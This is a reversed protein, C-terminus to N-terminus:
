AHRAMAAGQWNDFMAEWCMGGGRAKWVGGSGAGAYYSIPEGSVGAISAGGNGARPGVFRFRFIEEDGRAGPPRQAGALVACGALAALLLGTKIALRCVSTARMREMGKRKKVFLKAAPM